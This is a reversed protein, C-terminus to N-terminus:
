SAHPADGSDDRRERMIDAVLDEIPGLDDPGSFTGDRIGALLRAAEQSLSLYGFIGGAGALQHLLEGAQPINGAETVSRLKHLRAPLGNVFEAVVSALRPDRAASPSSPPRTSAGLAADDPEACVYDATREVLDDLSIPKPWVDDFGARLIRGREGETTSATLAIIPTLCGRRRLETTATLGDMGPMRVDMLILDFGHETAASIADEGNDVAEVEAGARALAHSVLDRVDYFDEALLIKGRLRLPTTSHRRAAASAPQIAIEAPAVWEADDLPGTAVRLTFTSGRGKVSTVELSGGLQQAIWKSLPLGLGVGSRAHSSAPDVQTFTDFV